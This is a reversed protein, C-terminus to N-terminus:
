AIKRMARTEARGKAVIQRVTLVPEGKQNASLPETAQHEELLQEARYKTLVARRVQGDPSPEWVRNPYEKVRYNAYGQHTARGDRVLRELIRHSKVRVCEPTQGEARNTVTIWRQIDNVTVHDLGSFDMWVESDIKQGCPSLPAVFRRLSEGTTNLLSFANEVDDEIAMKRGFLVASARILRCLHISIRPLYGGLWSGAVTNGEYYKVFDDFMEKAKDLVASPIAIQEYGLKLTAVLIKLKRIRDVDLDTCEKNKSYRELIAMAIKCTVEANEPIVSVYDLRSLINQPPLVTGDLGADVAGIKVHSPLNSDIHIATLADYKHNGAKSDIVFGDEMVTSCHVELERRQSPTLEHYDEITVVGHHANPLAGGNRNWRGEKYSPFGVLGAKSIAHGIPQHCPNLLSAAMTLIKKGSAPKGVVFSHIRGSSNQIRGSSVASMIIVDLAQGLSNHEELGVIGLIDVLESRIHNLYCYNHGNSGKKFESLTDEIEPRTARLISVASDCATFYLVQLGYDGLATVLGTIQFSQCKSKSQLFCDIFNQDFLKLELVGDGGIDEVTLEIMNVLEQQFKVPKPETYSKVKAQITVVQGIMEPRKMETISLFANPYGTGSKKM